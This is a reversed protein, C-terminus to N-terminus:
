ISASCALGTLACTLSMALVVRDKSLKNNHGMYTSVNYHRIGTLSIISTHHFVRTIPQTSNLLRTALQRLLPLNSDATRRSLRKRHDLAPRLLPPHQEGHTEIAARPPRTSAATPSSATRRADRYGSATTSHQGCYPLNSNAQRYDNPSTM